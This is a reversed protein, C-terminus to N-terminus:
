LNGRLSNAFQSIRARRGDQTPALGEFCSKEVETALMRINEDTAAGLESDRLTRLKALAERLGEASRFTSRAFDCYMMENSITLSKLKKRTPAYVDRLTSVLLGVAEPAENPEAAVRDCIETIQPFNVSSGPLLANRVLFAASQPTPTRLPIGAWIDIWSDSSWFELDDSVPSEM